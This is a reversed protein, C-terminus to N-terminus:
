SWAPIMSIERRSAAACGLRMLIPDIPLLVCPRSMTSSVTDFKSWPSASLFGAIYM